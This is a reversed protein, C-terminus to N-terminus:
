RTARLSSLLNFQGFNAGARGGLIGVAINTGSNTQLATNATTNLVITPAVKISLRGGRLAEAKTDALIEVVPESYSPTSSLSM